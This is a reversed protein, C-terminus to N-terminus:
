IKTGKETKEKRKRNKDESQDTLNLAPRKTLV